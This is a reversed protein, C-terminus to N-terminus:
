RRGAEFEGSRRRPMRRDPQASSVLSVGVRLERVMVLKAVVAFIVLFEALGPLTGGVGAFALPLAVILVILLLRLWCREVRHLALSGPDHPLSRV